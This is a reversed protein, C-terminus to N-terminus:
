VNGKEKNKKAIINAKIKDATFKDFIKIGGEGEAYTTWEQYLRKMNMNLIETQSYGLKKFTIFISNKWDTGSPLSNNNNNVVEFFPMDLHYEMYKKFTNFQLFINWNKDAEMNATLNKEFRKWENELLKFNNLMKYGNEYTMSCVLLSVYFHKISYDLDNTKIEEPAIFPNNMEQLLLIHGLCFPRLKIGCCIFQKPILAESYNCQTVEM